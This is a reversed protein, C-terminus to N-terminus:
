AGGEVRRIRHIVGAGVVVPLGALALVVALVLVRLGIQGQTMLWRLGAITIACALLYILAPLVMTRARIWDSREGRGAVRLGSPTGVSDLLDLVESASAPRRAREKELCRMVLAAIPPPVEPRKLSLPEPTESLHARAIKVPDGGGFPTAGTFLEYALVGWAYLDARADVDPDGLVQEPAMYRPTGIALGAGTLGDRPAESSAALAKSVGFDLVVAVGGTVIINDPKIDRHVIGQAHAAALAAMVNRLLRIAEGLPQAGERLRARLSMGDVYPMIYYLVGDLDGATLLPVIHPHSLRASLLVERRFREADVRAGHADLVKIAVRRGLATEGALFVRSMGGGGLEREIAYGPLRGLTALLDESM